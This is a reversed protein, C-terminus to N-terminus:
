DDSESNGYMLALTGRYIQLLVDRRPVLDEFALVMKNKGEVLFCMYFIVSHHTIGENIIIQEIKTKDIFEIIEPRFYYKRKLQVGLERMVILSEEKAIYLKSVLRVIILFVLLYTAFFKFMRFINFNFALLLISFIVFLSYDFKSLISKDKRSIKYERVDNNIYICNYDM